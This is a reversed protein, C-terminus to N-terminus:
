QVGGPLILYLASTRVSILFSINPCRKPFRMIHVSNFLQFFTKLLFLVSKVVAFNQPGVDDNYNNNNIATATTSTSATAIVGAATYQL